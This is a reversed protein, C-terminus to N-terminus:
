TQPNIEAEFTKKYTYEANFVQINSDPDSVSNSLKINVNFKIKNNNIIINDSNLQNSIQELEPVIYEEQNNVPNIQKYKDLTNKFAIIFSDTNKGDFNKASQKM